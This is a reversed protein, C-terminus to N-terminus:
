SIIIIPNNIKIAVIILLTWIGNEEQNGVAIAARIGTDENKLKLLPM